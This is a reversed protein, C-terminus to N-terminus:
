CHDCTQSQPPTWLLHSDWSWDFSVPQQGSAASRRSPPATQAPLSLGLGGPLIRLVAICYVVIASLDTMRIPLCYVTCYYYHGRDSTLSLTM